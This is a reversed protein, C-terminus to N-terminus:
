TSSSVLAISAASARRRRASRSPTSCGSRRGRSRAQVAVVPRDLAPEGRRRARRRDHLRREERAHDVLLAVDDRAPLTTSGVPAPCSRTSRGTRCRRRRARLREHAGVEVPRQVEGTRLREVAVLDRGPEAHLRMSRGSSRQRSSPRRTRARDTARRSSAHVEEFRDRAAREGLRGVGDLADEATRGGRRRGYTWWRQRLRRLGFGYSCHTRRTGLTPSCRAHGLDSTAAARTSRGAPIAPARRVRGVCDRMAASLARGDDDLGVFADWGDVFNGFPFPIDIGHCAGVQPGEWTFCYTYTPGHPAHADLVARCPVQM